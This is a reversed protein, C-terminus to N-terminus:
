SRFNSLLFALTSISLILFAADLNPYVAVLGLATCISVGLGKSSLAAFFMPVGFLAGYEM